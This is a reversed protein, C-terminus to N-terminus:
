KGSTIRSEIVNRCIKLKSTNIRDEKPTKEQFSHIMRFLDVKSMGHDSENLASIAISSAIDADQENFSAKQEYHARMAYFAPSAAKRRKDIEADKPNLEHLTRLSEYLVHMNRNSLKDSLLDYGNIILKRDADELRGTKYVKHRINSITDVIETDLDVPAGIFRPPAAPRGLRPTTQRGVSPEQHSHRGGYSTAATLFVIGTYILNWRM